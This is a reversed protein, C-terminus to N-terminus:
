LGLTLFQSKSLPGLKRIYLQQHITHLNDQTNDQTSDPEICVNRCLRDKILINWNKLLACAFTEIKLIQFINSINKM